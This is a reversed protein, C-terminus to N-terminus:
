DHAEDLGGDASRREALLAYLAVPLFGFHERWQHEEEVIGDALARSISGSRFLM